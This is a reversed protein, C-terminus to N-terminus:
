STQQNACETVRAATPAPVAVPRATARQLAYEIRAIYTGLFPEKPAAAHMAKLAGLATKLCDYLDPAAQFLLANALAADPANDANGSASGARERVVAIITQGKLLLHDVDKNDRTRSERRLRRSFRTKGYVPGHTTM